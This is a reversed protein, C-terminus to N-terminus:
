FGLTEPVLIVRIRGGPQAYITLVKALLSGPYGVTQMRQFERPLCYQHIRQPGEDHDRVLKQHGVVLTVSGASYAYPGLQSGSGSGVLVIGDDTIAHASGVIFDPAAGLKRMERSQTERDLKALKARVSDYRGSEEIEATIGLQGLTESLATHVEAGPPLEDLVLRRADDGDAAIQARFGRGELAAATRKMRDPGAPREFDLNPAGPDPLVMSM